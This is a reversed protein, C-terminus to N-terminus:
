ICTRQELGPIQHGPVTTGEGKMKQAGTQKNKNKQKKTQKNTQKNKLSAM